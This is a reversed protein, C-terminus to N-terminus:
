TCFINEVENGFHVGLRTDGVNSINIIKGLVIGSDHCGEEWFIFLNFKSSVWVKLIEYIM